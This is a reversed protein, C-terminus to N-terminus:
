EFDLGLGFKHTDASMDKMDVEACLTLHMRPAVRQRFSSSLLAASDVKAKIVTNEDGKLECGIFLSQSNSKIM